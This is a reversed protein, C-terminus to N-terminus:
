ASCAPDSFRIHVRQEGGVCGGMPGLSNWEGLDWNDREIDLCCQIAQVMAVRDQLIERAQETIRIADPMTDGEPPMVACRLVGVEVIAEYEYNCKSMQGTLMTNMPRIEGVSVWAQGNGITCDCCEDWAPSKAVDLFVRCPPRNCDVLAASLCDLLRELIPGLRDPCCTM